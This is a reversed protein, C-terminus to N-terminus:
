YGIEVLINETVQDCDNRIMNIFWPEQCAPTNKLLEKLRNNEWTNRIKNIALTYCETRLFASFLFNNAKPYEREFFDQDKSLLHM